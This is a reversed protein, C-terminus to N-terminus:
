MDDGPMHRMTYISRINTYTHRERHARRMDIGICTVCEHYSVRLASRVIVVRRVCAVRVLFAALLFYFTHLVEDTLVYFCSFTCRV